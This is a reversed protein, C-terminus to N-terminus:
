LWSLFLLFDILLLAYSRQWNEYFKHEPHIRQVMDAFERLTCLLEEDNGNEYVMINIKKSTLKFIFKHEVYKLSEEEVQLNYRMIGKEKSIKAHQVKESEGEFTLTNVSYELRPVTIQHQQNSNIKSVFFTLILSFEKNELGQTRGWVLYEIFSDVDGAEVGESVLAAYENGATKVIDKLFHM